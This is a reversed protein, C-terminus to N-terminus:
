DSIREDADTDGYLGVMNGHEVDVVTITEGDSVGKQTFTDSEVMSYIKLNSMKMVNRVM